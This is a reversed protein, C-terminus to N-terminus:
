YMELDVSDLLFLFLKKSSTAILFDWEVKYYAKNLDFKIAM